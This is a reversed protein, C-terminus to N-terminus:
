KQQETQEDGNKIKVVTGIMALAYGLGAVVGIAYNDHEDKVEDSKSDKFRKIYDNIIDVSEIDITGEKVIKYGNGLVNGIVDLVFGEMDQSTLGRSADVNRLNTNWHKKFEPTVIAEALDAMEQHEALDFDFEFDM